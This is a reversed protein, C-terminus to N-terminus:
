KLRLLRLAPGDSPGGIRVLYLGGPVPRGRDDTGDWEVSRPGTRADLVLRRVRRGAADTIRVVPPDDAAAPRPGTFTLRTRGAFPNPRAALLVDPEFLDAREEAIDSSGQFLFLANYLSLRGGSVTKGELSPLLDVGDLIAQKVQLVVADPDQRYDTLWPTTAAAAMLAVSGAVHPSAQSTGTRTEYDNGVDTSLVYDGPAGLDITTPGWASRYQIVNGITTCTVTILYDSPCATPMDGELDINWNHNATAATSLVGEEGLADYMACWLPYAAPDGRDIGFSSNAVVVFAGETGSSANYRARMELVYGYAECVVAESEASGVVPLVYGEWNVGSIGVGNDGIAAAIGTVHAGHSADPITGDHAIANWGHYDDVYGNGDDDQGNNPVERWNKWFRLDEHTLCSGDDVIAIVVTDGLATVGGTHREWAEPADIDSDPVGGQGGQYDLAWQDPFLPDNPYLSRNQVYHNRQALRVAPHARVRGLLAPEADADAAHRFLWIGMRRSLLRAAELGEAAFADELAGVEATPEAPAPQAAFPLSPDPALQILMEGPVYPAEAAPPGPVALIAACGVAAALRGAGMKSARRRPPMRKSGRQVMM